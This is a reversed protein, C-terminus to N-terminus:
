KLSEQKVILLNEIIKKYLCTFTQKQNGRIYFGKGDFADPIRTVISKQDRFYYCQTSEDAMDEPRYLRLDFDATIIRAPKKGVNAAMSFAKLLVEPGTVATGINLIVGGNTLKTIMQTFILFDAASCAGKACGDFSPHQDIVDTGIGAHVTFPVNNEYCAALVSIHPYLWFLHHMEMQCGM